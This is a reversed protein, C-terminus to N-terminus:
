LEVFKLYQSLANERDNKAEYLEGLRKDSGSLTKALQARLETM